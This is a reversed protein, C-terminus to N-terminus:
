VDHPSLVTRTHETSEKNRINMKARATALSFTQEIEKAMVIGVRDIQDAIDDIAPRQLRSAGAVIACHSRESTSRLARLPAM